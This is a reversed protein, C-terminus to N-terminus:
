NLGYQHRLVFKGREAKEMLLNPQPAPQKITTNAFSTFRFPRSVSRGNEKWASKLRFFPSDKIAVCTGFPGLLYITFTHLDKFSSRHGKVRPYIWSRNPFIEFVTGFGDSGVEEARSTFLANEPTQVYEDGIGVLTSTGVKRFHGIMAGKGTNFKILKLFKCNQSTSFSVMEM